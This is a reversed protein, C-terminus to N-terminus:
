NGSENAIAEQCDSLLSIMRNVTDFFRASRESERRHQLFMFVLLIIGLINNLTFVDVLFTEM